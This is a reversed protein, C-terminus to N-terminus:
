FVSLIPAFGGARVKRGNVFKLILLQRICVGTKWVCGLVSLM